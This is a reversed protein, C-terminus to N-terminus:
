DSGPTPAPEAYGHEGHVYPKFPGPSDLAALAAAIGADWDFRRAEEVVARMQEVQAALSDLADAANSLLYPNSSTLPDFYGGLSRLAKAKRRAEEPTVPDTM